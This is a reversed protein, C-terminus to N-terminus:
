GCALMSIYSDPSSIFDVPKTCTSNGITCYKLVNYGTAFDDYSDSRFVHPRHDLWNNKVKMMKSFFDNVWEYSRSHSCKRLIDNCGPQEYGKNLYLDIHGIPETIGLWSTSFEPFQISFPWVYETFSTESYCYLGVNIKGKISSHIIYVLKADSKSLKVYEVYPLLTVGAAPDCATIRGIMRPGLDKGVLGAIHAGLSHGM